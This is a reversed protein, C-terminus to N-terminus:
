LNIFLYLEKIFTSSVQDSDTTAFQSRFLREVMAAIGSFQRFVGGFLDISFL